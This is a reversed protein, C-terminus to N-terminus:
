KPKCLLDVPWAKPPFYKSCYKWKLAPCYVFMVSDNIWTLFLHFTAYADHWANHAVHLSVGFRKCLDSLTLSGKLKARRAWGYTCIKAFPQPPLRKNRIFENQIFTWDHAANHMIVVHMHLADYLIDLHGERLPKSANLEEKPVGPINKPDRGVSTEADVVASISICGNVCGDTGFIGYQIIRDRERNLGTTELDLAVTTIDPWLYM